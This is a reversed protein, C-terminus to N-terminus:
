DGTLDDPAAEEPLSPEHGHQKLIHQAERGRSALERLREIDWPAFGGDELRKEAMLGEEVSKQLEALNETHDGPVAREPLREREDVM